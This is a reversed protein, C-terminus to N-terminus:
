DLLKRITNAAFGKFEPFQEIDKCEYFRIYSLAAVVPHLRCAVDYAQKLRNLPLFQEWTSLYALVIQWVAADNINHNRIASDVCMVCSFFPHTIIADGWDSITLKDGKLLINNDQFDGHELTEPIDYLALEKCWSTISTTKDKLLRLENESLGDALWVDHQQLLAGYLAPMKDLRWDNVGDKLFKDVYPLTAVQLTACMHVAREWCGTYFNKQMVSRLTEGADPMLFCGLTEDLAIVRTAFGQSCAELRQLITMEKSFPRAMSKLMVRGKSTNLSSVTSWPMARVMEWSGQFVYGESILTSEAWAVQDPRHGVVYADKM